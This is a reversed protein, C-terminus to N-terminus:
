VLPKKPCNYSMHGGEGCTFCNKRKSEGAAAVESNETRTRKPVSYAIRMPRGLVEMQDLKMAAELSEDDTFDIHGFGRFGGTEKDVAFRITEIKSGKFFRRLEKESIDWALNGIYASLCGDFKKPPEQYVDKKVLEKPRIKCVEVKLFRGGRCFCDGCNLHGCRGLALAWSLESLNILRSSFKSALTSFKCTLVM